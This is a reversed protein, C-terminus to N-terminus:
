KVETAFSFGACAGGTMSYRDWARHKKAFCYVSGRGIATGIQVSPGENGLPVGFLFTTLSLFFIGIFNTMWKFSIFGRLIGISTPIGGGRLNRFHKYVKSLVYAIVLALAIVLPLYYLHGRLYHYGRESLSIVHKACVKYFNIILSTLVGTISGFIVAPFILNIFYNKYGNSKM